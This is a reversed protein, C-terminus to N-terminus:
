RCMNSILDLTQTFNSVIVIRDNGMRRMQRMLKYLLNLKGSWEPHVDRDRQRGQLSVPLLAAIQALESNPGNIDKGELLIKPHNCLKQLNGPACVCACKLLLFINLCM